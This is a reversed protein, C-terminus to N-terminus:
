KIQNSKYLRQYKSTLGPRSSRIKKMYLEHTVNRYLKLLKWPILAFYLFLIYLCHVSRYFKIASLFYPESNQKLFFQLLLLLILAHLQSNVELKPVLLHQYDRYISSVKKLSYYRLPIVNRFSFPASTKKIKHLKMIM